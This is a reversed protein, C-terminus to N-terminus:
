ATKETKEVPAVVRNPDPMAVTKASEKAIEKFLMDATEALREACVKTEGSEIKAIGENQEALAKKFEERAVPADKALTITIFDNLATKADTLRDTAHELLATYDPNEKDLKAVGYEKRAVEKTLAAEETKLFAEYDAVEKEISAVKSQRASILDLRLRDRAIKKITTAVSALTVATTNAPNM